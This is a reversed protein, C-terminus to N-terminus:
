CLLIGENQAENLFEMLDTKASKEDIEFSCLIKKLLDEEAIDNKLQECIFAGIANTSFIGSVALAGEGLPILIYDGTMERASFEYKLKM